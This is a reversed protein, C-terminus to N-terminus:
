IAAGNVNTRLFANGKLSPFDIKDALGMESIRWLLTDINRVTDGAVDAIASCFKQVDSYGHRACLRQLHRDPKPFDFGLNKALHFATIKGIFPFRQLQNIPDNSIEAHTSFFGKQSIIAACEAIAGIKTKSRFVDLATAVCIARRDNIATASSWDLFCISIKSFIRRV